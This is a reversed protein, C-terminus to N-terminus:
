GKCNGTEVVRLIPPRSPGEISDTNNNSVAIDLLAELATIVQEYSDYRHEILYDSFFLEYFPERSFSASAAPINLADLVYDLLCEFSSGQDLLGADELKALRESEYEVMALLDALTAKDIQRQFSRAFPQGQLWPRTDM